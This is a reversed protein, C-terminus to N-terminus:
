VFIRESQFAVGDRVIFYAARALKHALAAHAVMRNTQKMKREYYARAQSDYRRALEAAESFAWALYKNGNKKNGKGKSKGNSLWKTNVKRCYSAYNGVGNFRGIDGTELVITLGLIRGIGPITLLNKYAENGSVRKELTREIKRIQKTLFDISEKSVTGSLALDENDKLLPSIRDERMITVDNGRMQIGCNRTITNQLSIMLSTRLRVLHRRKRLLDRVARDEKPCIHGEPLIGLRLMEALWFADHRDDLHKLGSYQQIASPNALHMRYGSEQLLDVLWYWGNLPC